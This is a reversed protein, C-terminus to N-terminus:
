LMFIRFPSDSVAYPKKNMNILNIQNKMKSFM